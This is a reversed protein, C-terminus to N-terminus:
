VVTVVIAIIVVEVTAQRNKSTRMKDNNFTMLKFVFVTRTEDSVHRLADCDLNLAKPTQM